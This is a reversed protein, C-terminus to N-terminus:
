ATAKWPAPTHVFSTQLLEYPEALVAAPLEFRVDRIGIRQGCFQQGKGVAAAARDQDAHGVVARKDSQRGLVHPTDILQDAIGSGLADATWDRGGRLVNRHAVLSGHNGHCHGFPQVFRVEIALAHDPQFGTGVFPAHLGLLFEAAEKLIDIQQLGVLNRGAGADVVQVSNAKPTKKLPM